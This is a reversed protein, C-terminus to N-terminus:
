HLIIILFARWEYKLVFVKSFLIERISDRPKTKKKNPNITLTLKTIQIPKPILISRKRSEDLEISVLSGYMLWGCRVLALERPSREEVVLILTRESYINFSSFFPFHLRGFIVQDVM